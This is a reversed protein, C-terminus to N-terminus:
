PSEPHVEEVFSLKHDFFSYLKRSTETSLKTDLSCVWNLLFMLIFTLDDAIELYHLLVQHSWKLMM